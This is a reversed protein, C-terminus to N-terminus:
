TVRVTLFLLLPFDTTVAAAAVTAVTAAQGAKAAVKGNFAAFRLDHQLARVGIM